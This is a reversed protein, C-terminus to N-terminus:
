DALDNWISAIECVVEYLTKGATSIGMEDLYEKLEAMTNEMIKEESELM